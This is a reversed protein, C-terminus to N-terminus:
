VIVIEVKKDDVIYDNAKDSVETAPRAIRSKSFLPTSGLSLLACVFFVSAFVYVVWEDARYQMQIFSSVNEAVASLMGFFCIGRGRVSAPFLELVMLTILAFLLNKFSYIFVLGSGIRALESDTYVNRVTPEWLPLGDASDEGEYLTMEWMYVSALLFTGLSIFALCLGPLFRISTKMWVGITIFVTLLAALHMLVDTKLSNFQYSNGVYEQFPYYYFNICIKEVLWFAVIAMTCVAVRAAISKWEVASEPSAAIFEEKTCPATGNGATIGDYAIAAKGRNVLSAPTDRRVACLGLCTVLLLAGAPIATVIVWWNDMGTNPDVGETYAASNTILARLLSAFTPIVAFGVLAIGRWKAETVEFLYLSVLWTICAVGFYPVLIQGAELMSVSTPWMIMPSLVITFLSISVLGFFRGQWDALWGLLIYGPLTPIWLYECLALLVDTYEDFGLNLLSTDQYLQNQSINYGECIAIASVLLLILFGFTMFQHWGMGSWSM